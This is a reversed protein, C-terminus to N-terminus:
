CPRLDPPGASTTPLKQLHTLLRGGYDLGRERLIRYAETDTFGAPSFHLSPLQQLVKIEKEFFFPSTRGM